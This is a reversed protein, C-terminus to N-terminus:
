RAHPSRENWAAFAEAETTALTQPGAGCHMCRWRWGDTRVDRAISDSGCWPNPCALLERARAEQAKDQTM